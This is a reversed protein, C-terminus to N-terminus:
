GARRLSSLFTVVARDLDDSQGALSTSTELVKAAGQRSAKAADRVDGINRSVEATGTMATSASQAIRQIALSQRQVAETIRESGQRMDEITKQIGKVAQVSAATASQIESVQITIDDTALQTQTALTKVESAVVAFGKGAQGARAAEITANLALLHTKSAVANILKVVQKIQEGASALGEIAKRTAEAEETGRVAIAAATYVERAIEDIATSVEGSSSAVTEASSAAREAGDAVQDARKTVTEALGQMSQAAGKLESGVRAVDAVVSQVGAEFDRALSERKGQAAAEIDAIHTALTFDMEIFILQTLGNLAPKLLGPQSGMQDILLGSFAAQIAAFGVFYTDMGIGLALHHRQLELVLDAYDQDLQGRFLREYHPRQLAIVKDLAPGETIGVSHYIPRLMKEISSTLLGIAAGLQAASASANRFKALQQPTLSM